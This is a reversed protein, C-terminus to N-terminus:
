YFNHYLFVDESTVAFSSNAISLFILYFLIVVYKKYQCMQIEGEEIEKLITEEQKKYMERVNGINFSIKM